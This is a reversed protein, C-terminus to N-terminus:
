PCEHKGTALLQGDEVRWVHMEMDDASVLISSDPSFLLAFIPSQHGELTCITQSGDPSSLVIINNDSYALFRWDASYTVAMSNIADKSGLLETGARISWLFLGTALDAALYQGDPSFAVDSTDYGGSSTYGRILKFNDLNWLSVEGDSPITALMTGDPSIGINMLELGGPQFSNLLNGEGDWVKVWGDHSASFLRDGTPTFELKIPSAQGSHISTLVAQDSVRVLQITGDELAWALIEGDPSLAVVPGNLSSPAELFSEEQLHQLNFIQVGEVGRVLLRRGDPM